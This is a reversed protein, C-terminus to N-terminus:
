AAVEYVTKTVQKARVPFAKVPDSEFRDQDEQLESVPDLYYFGRLHGMPDDSPGLDPTFVVLVKAYWRHKSVQQEAVKHHGDYIDEAEDITLTWESM